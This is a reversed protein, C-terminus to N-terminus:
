LLAIYRFIHFRRPNVTYSILSYQSARLKSSSVKHYVIPLQESDCLVSESLYGCYTFASAQQRYKITINCASIERRYFIHNCIPELTWPIKFLDTIVYAKTIHLLFRYRAYWISAVYLHKYTPEEMYLWNVESIWKQQCGCPLLIESSCYLM